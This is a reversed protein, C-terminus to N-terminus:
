QSNVFGGLNLLRYRHIGRINFSKPRFYVSFSGILAPFPKTFSPTTLKCEIALEPENFPMTARAIKRKASLLTNKSTSWYRDAM